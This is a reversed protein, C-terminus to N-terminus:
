DSNNSVKFFGGVFWLLLGVACAGKFTLGVDYLEAWDVVIYNWIFQLILANIVVSVVVVVIVLVIAGLCSLSDNM